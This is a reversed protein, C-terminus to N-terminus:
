IHTTNTKSVKSISKKYRQYVKPIDESRKGNRGMAERKNGNEGLEEQM